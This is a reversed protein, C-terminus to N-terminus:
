RIWQEKEVDQTWQADTASVKKDPFMNKHDGSMWKDMM